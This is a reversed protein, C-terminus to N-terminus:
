RILNVGTQFARLPDVMSWIKILPVTFLREGQRTYVSVPIKATEAKSQLQTPRQHHYAHMLRYAHVAQEQMAWDQDFAGAAGWLHIERIPEKAGHVTVGEMQATM